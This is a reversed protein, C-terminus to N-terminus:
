DGHAPHCGLGEACWPARPAVEDQLESLIRALDNLNNSGCFLAAAQKASIELDVRAADAVHVVPRGSDMLLRDPDDALTALVYAGNGAPDIWSRGNLIAAWGAFCAKTGCRYHEQDHQDPHATIYAMVDSALNTNM